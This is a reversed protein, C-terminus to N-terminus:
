RFNSEDSDVVVGYGNIQHKGRDERDQRRYKAHSNHYPDNALNRVYKPKIKTKEETEGQTTTIVTFGMGPYGGM